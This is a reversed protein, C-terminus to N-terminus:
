YKAKVCKTKKGKKHVKDIHASRPSGPLPIQEDPHYEFMTSEVRSPIGEIYSSTPPVSILSHSLNVPLDPLSGEPAFFPFHTSINVSLNLSYGRPYISPDTSTCTAMFHLTAQSPPPPAFVPWSLPYEPLSEALYSTGPDSRSPM